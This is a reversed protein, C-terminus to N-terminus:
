FLAFIDRAAKDASFEEELNNGDGAGLLLWISQLYVEKELQGTIALQSTILALLTKFVVLIEITTYFVVLQVEIGLLM